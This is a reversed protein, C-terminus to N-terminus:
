EMTHSTWRSVWVESATLTASPPEGDSEAVALTVNCYSDGHGTCTYVTSPVDPTTVAPSRHLAPSEGLSVLTVIPPFAM